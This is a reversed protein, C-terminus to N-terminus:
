LMYRPGPRPPKQPGWGPPIWMWSTPDSQLKPLEFHNAVLGHQWSDHWKWCVYFKWPQKPVRITKTPPQRLSGFKQRKWFRKLMKWSQQGDNFHFWLRFEKISGYGNAMGKSHIALVPHDSLDSKPFGKRLSSREIDVPSRFFFFMSQFPLYTTTTCDELIRCHGPVHFM